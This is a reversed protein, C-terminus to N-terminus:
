GARGSGGSETGRALARVATGGGVIASPVPAAVNLLLFWLPVTQPGSLAAVANVALVVIGVAVAYRMLPQGAPAFRVALHAGVLVFVCRLLTTLLLAGTTVPEGAAPLVGRVSLWNTTVITLMAIVIAGVLVPLIHRVLAPQPQASPSPSTM